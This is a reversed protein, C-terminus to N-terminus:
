RQGPQHLASRRVECLWVATKCYRFFDVVLAKGEDITMGDHVIPFKNIAEWSLPDNVTEFGSGSKYASVDKTPGKVEAEKSCAAFSVAMVAVLLLALLAFLTKKM